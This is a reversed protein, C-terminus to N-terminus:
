ALALKSNVSYGLVFSYTYCRYLSRVVQGYIYWRRYFSNNYLNSEVRRNTTLAHTDLDIYTIPDPTYTSEM